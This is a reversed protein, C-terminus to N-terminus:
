LARKAMQSLRRWDDETNSVSLICLPEDASDIDASLLLCLSGLSSNVQITLCRNATFIDLCCGSEPLKYIAMTTSVDRTVSLATRALMRYDDFSVGPFSSGNEQLSVAMYNPLETTM